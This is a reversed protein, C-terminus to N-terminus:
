VWVSHLADFLEWLSLLNERNGQSGDVPRTAWLTCSINWTRSLLFCVCTLKLSQIRSGGIREDIAKV